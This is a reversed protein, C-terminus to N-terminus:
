GKLRWGCFITLCLWVIGRSNRSSNNSQTQGNTPNARLPNIKMEFSIKEM